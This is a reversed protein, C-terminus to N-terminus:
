KFHRRDRSRLSEYSFQFCSYATLMPHQYHTATGIPRAHPRGRYYKMKNPQVNNVYAGRRCQALSENMTIRVGSPSRSRDGSVAAQLQKALM